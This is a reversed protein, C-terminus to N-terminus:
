CVIRTAVDHLFCDVIEIQCNWIVPVGCMEGCVPGECVDGEGFAEWRQCRDVIPICNVVQVIAVM